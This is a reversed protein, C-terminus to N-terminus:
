RRPKLEVKIDRSEMDNLGQIESQVVRVRRDNFGLSSLAKRFQTVSTDSMGFADRLDAYGNASIEGGPAKELEKVIRDKLHARASM